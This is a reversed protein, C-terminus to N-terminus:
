AAEEREGPRRYAMRAHVRCYPVGHRFDAEAAGCFTFPTGDGSMVWRCSENALELLGVLIAPAPARPPAPPAIPPAHVAPPRFPTSRAKQTRKRPPGAAIGKRTQEAMEGPPRSLGLRYTKGLVANRSPAGMERVIQGATVGHEWLMKLEAVREDTWFTM